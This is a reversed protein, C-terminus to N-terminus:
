KIEVVTDLEFLRKAWSPGSTTKWRTDIWVDNSELWWVGGCRQMRWDSRRAPFLLRRVHEKGRGFHTNGRGRKEGFYSWQLVVSTTSRKEEV